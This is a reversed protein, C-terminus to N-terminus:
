PIEYLLWSDIEGPLMTRLKQKRTSVFIPECAVPPWTVCVWLQSVQPNGDFRRGHRYFGADVVPGHMQSEEGCVEHPLWGHLKDITQPLFGTLVKEIVTEHSRFSGHNFEFRAPTM